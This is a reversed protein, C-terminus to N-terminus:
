DVTIHFFRVCFSWTAPEIYMRWVYLKDKIFHAAPLSGIFISTVLISENEM